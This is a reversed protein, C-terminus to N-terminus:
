REYCGCFLLTCICCFQNANELDQAWNEWKRVFEDPLPKDWDYRKLSCVEQLLCKMEIVLPSILGLPDYLNAIMRLLNRKTPTLSHSFEVIKEFSFSLIDRENDWNIGLVKRGEKANM